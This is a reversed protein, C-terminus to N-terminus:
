DNVSKCEPRDGSGNGRCNIINKGPAVCHGASIQQQAIASRVGYVTVDADVWSRGQGVGRRPTWTYIGIGTPTSSASFISGRPGDAPVVSIMHIQSRCYTYGDPIKVEFHGEESNGPKGAGAVIAAGISILNPPVGLYSAGAKIVTVCGDNGACERLLDPLSKPSEVPNIKASVVLFDKNEQANAGYAVILSVAVIALRLM